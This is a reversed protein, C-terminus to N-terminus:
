RPAGVLEASLPPTAAEGRGVTPQCSEAPTWWSFPPPTRGKRQASKRALTHMLMEFADYGSLFAQAGLKQTATARKDEASTQMGPAENDAQLWLVRPWICALNRRLRRWESDPYDDLIKPLNPIDSQKLRLSFEDWPLLSAFAQDVSTNSDPEDQIVLPVCGSAVTEYARTSFGMGSPALCFKSSRLIELYEHPPLAKHKGRVSDGRLDRLFFRETANYRRFVKQRVGFSYGPTHFRVSGVFSLLFRHGNASANGYLAGGHTAAAGMFPSDAILKDVKLMPPVVVDYEPRHIHPRKWGWQTVLTLEKLLPVSGRIFTAGKDNTMVLFHDRGNHRKFWPYTGAVYEIAARLFAHGRQSLWYLGFEFDYFGLSLYAPIFFYDAAAPDLTRYPSRLLWRHLKADLSYLYSQDWRGARRFHAALWVHFRPPLEYVYIRLGPAPPPMEPRPTRLMSESWGHPSALGLRSQEATVTAALVADPEGFGCEVGWTGPVCHCFNLKCVGRGSCGHVCYKKQEPAELSGPGHECQEGYWGPLCHCARGVKQRHRHWPLVQTYLGHGSCLHARKSEEGDATLRRALDLNQRSLETETLQAERRNPTYAQRLWRGDGFPDRWPYKVAHPDTNTPHLWQLSANVCDVVYVVRLNLAQCEALCECSPPFDLYDSMETTLAQCPPVPLDLGWQRGCSPVANLECAEGSRM